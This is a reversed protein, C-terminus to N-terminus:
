SPPAFKAIVEAATERPHDGVFAYGDPKHDIFIEGAIKFGAEDKFAGISFMYQGTPKQYYFLSSGCNGCFGRQAWESSEYTKLHKKEAWTLEQVPTAFFPGGGGWQRCMACHCVGHHHELKQVSFRTEGCLCQGNISSM